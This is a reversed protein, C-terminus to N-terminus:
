LLGGNAAIRPWILGTWAEGDFTKFIWKLMIRGEVVVDESIDRERLSREGWFVRYAVRRDEIRAVHRDWGM